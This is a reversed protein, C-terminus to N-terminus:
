CGCDAAGPKFERLKINRFRVTPRDDRAGVGHVQLGIHGEATMADMLDAAPVGNVWTQIRSGKAVVRIQNWEGQRWAHRAYPKEILPNLWGRRGEDFIGGSYRRDTPDGEVQYGRIKGSRKDIGGDVHSRIQVGSNLDTTLIEYSLEFDRYTQETMLFTNGGSNPVATGVIEGNDVAFESQGGRVVWGDLSKGDFLDREPEPSYTSTELPAVWVNRFRVPGEADSWHGQLRLPGTLMTEGERVPEGHKAASGTPQPLEVDHHVLVGNWYLTIRANETKNGSEDFRAARFWIDYSQWEGPGASANVDAPKFKYLSGAEWPELAKDAPTSLVQVEYRGQIYVGSNGTQKGYGGDERAPAMWELHLRQDGFTASSMLNGLSKSVAVGEAPDMQILEDQTVAGKNAMRKPEVNSHYMLGKSSRGILAVADAPPLVGMGIGPNDSEDSVIIRGNITSPEIPEATPIMNLTYFAETSWITEGDLSTPLMRLYVCRWPKLDPIVLRVGQGDEDPHAEAAKLIEQNTKWGGYQATPNYNWQEVDYNSADALWEADIPKTFRVHFGDPTASVSLMEFVTKGNPTMRQLGFRTGNWAWSGGAGIGGIYLSGDPGWDLRNVGCELGQTFRFAAGQWQGNVKELYGRRIGGSTIEGILMQGAFPGDEILLAKSPSNIFENQPLYLVPTSRIQDSYTSPHGGEPFRDALNPVINTRNFHGYFRGPQVHSLVSTPFWTGQNDAYFLSGEPGMAVTNPTRLGGAIVRVSETALDIEIMSGRMPGNTAANTGMGEWGPPAMATSLAVYLKGHHHILGFSFQHYNWGEWGEGVTHHTEFYGDGDQDTLRTVARRHSVYLADGIACLGSPELFGDAIEVLEYADADNGTAGRVEYLKDPEKSDIDPLAVNSRQKPSFTGVILRGDDIFTMAGVSPKSDTPRITAIDYGPHLGAVAKGDGPSRTNSLRKVGPSTVRTPDAISRWYEAPISEFDEAGPARWELALNSEEGVTLQQINFRVYSGEDNWVMSTEIVEPDGITTDGRVGGWVQFRLAGNGTLRVQYKGPEPCTLESQIVIVRKGPVAEAWPASEHFDLAEHLQEYNPTQHPALKPVNTLDGEVSYVQVAVGTEYAVQGSAASGM